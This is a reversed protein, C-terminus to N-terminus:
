HHPARSRDAYRSARVTNGVGSYSSAKHFADLCGKEGAAEAERCEDRCASLRWSKGHRREVLRSDARAAIEVDPAGIGTLWPLLDHLPLHVHLHHRRLVDTPRVREHKDMTRPLGRGIPHARRVAALAPGLIEDLLAVDDVHDVLRHAAAR